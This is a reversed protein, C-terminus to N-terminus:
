CIYNGNEDYCALVSVTFIDKLTAYIVGAQTPAAETGLPGFDGALISRELAETLRCIKFEMGYLEGFVPALDTELEARHADIYNATSPHTTRMQDLMDSVLRQSTYWERGDPTPM